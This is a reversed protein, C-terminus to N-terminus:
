GHQEAGEQLLSGTESQPLLPLTFSFTSGAGVCSQVWMRGGLQKIIQASIFLGLGLGPSTDHELNSMRFFHEFVHVQKEPAIGIGFDQVSVIANDADSALKVLIVKALPSYKIANTLLNIIVRGVRERDGSVPTPVTGEIRIQHQETTYGVEEVLDRVLADLDFQENHLVLQSSELRTLDLLVGILTILKNVQANMKTLLDASREDGAKAFRNHLMQTYGKLSTIPTKLEHSAVAMFETRQELVQQREAEVRKRETIDEIALLILSVNEIRRANLLMIRYGIKPFSDRVEYDVLALNTPLMEELLIRLSPIDWQNDGLEFICCGETSAHEVQFYQYFARNARQVRLHEDLVLLPERVTEVITDAYDRAEQLQVNRHQLEENVVLLEENSAQIEEKSTELEENISQLEENSSLSEENVSNLEENAAEFEEILTRMENRTSALEREIDRIRRDKSEQQEDSSMVPASPAPAEEFLILFYCETDSARVPFVKVTIDHLVRYTNVQIGEKKVPQGTKRAESIATRLELDLGSKAM